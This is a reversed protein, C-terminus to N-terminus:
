REPLVHTEAQSLPDYALALLTQVVHLVLQAVHTVAADVQVEHVDGSKSSDTFLVHTLEQGLPYLAFPVDQACHAALWYPGFQRAQLQPMPPTQSWPM